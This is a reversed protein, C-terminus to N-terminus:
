QRWQQTRAWNVQLVWSWANHIHAAEAGGWARHCVSWKWRHSVGRNTIWCGACGRHGLVCESVCVCPLAKKKRTSTLYIWVNVGSILWQHSMRVRCSRRATLNFNKKRRKFLLLFLLPEAASILFAPWTQQKVELHWQERSWHDLNSSDRSCRCINLAWYLWVSVASLRGRVIFPVM